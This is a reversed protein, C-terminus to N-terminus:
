SVPLQEALRDLSAPIRKLSLQLREYETGGSAPWKTLFTALPDAINRAILEQQRQRAKEKQAEVYGAGAWEVLQQTVAASIPVWLVDHWSIGGMAVTATIAGLDLAL